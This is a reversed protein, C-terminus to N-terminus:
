LRKRGEMKEAFLSESLRARQLWLLWAAWGPAALMIARGAWGSFIGIGRAHRILGCKPCAACHTDRPRSKPPIFSEIGGGVITSIM